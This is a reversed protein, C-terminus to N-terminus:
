IIETKFNPVLSVNFLPFIGNHNIIMVSIIFTYNYLQGKHRSPSQSSHIPHLTIIRNFYWFPKYTM